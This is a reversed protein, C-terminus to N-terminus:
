PSVGGVQANTKSKSAPTALPALELREEVPLMQVGGAVRRVRAIYAQQFAPDTSDAAAFTSREPMTVRLSRVRLDDVGLDDFLSEAVATPLIGAVSESVTQPELWGAFRRWRNAAIGASGAPPYRVADQRGTNGWPAIELVHDADNFQGYTLRHDFGVDLWMPVMWPSFLRSKITRVLVSSGSASNGAVTLAFGILYLCIAISVLGRFLEGPLRPTEVTGDTVDTPQRSVPMNRCTLVPHESTENIPRDRGGEHEMDFYVEHFHAPGVVKANKESKNALM